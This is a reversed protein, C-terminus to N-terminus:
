DDLTITVRGFDIFLSLLAGETSCIAFAKSVPGGGDLVFLEGDLGDLQVRAFGVDYAEEVLPELCDDWFNPVDDRSSFAEEWAVLATHVKADCLAFLNARAGHELALSVTEVSWAADEIQRLRVRCESVDAQEDESLASSDGQFARHNLPSARPILEAFALENSAWHLVKWERTWSPSYPVSVM